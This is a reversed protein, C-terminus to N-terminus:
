TYSSRQLHHLQMEEGRTLGSHLATATSSRAALIGCRMKWTESEWGESVDLPLYILSDWHYGYRPMGPIRM